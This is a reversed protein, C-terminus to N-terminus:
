VLLNLFRSGLPQIRAVLSYAEELEHRNIFGQTFQDYAVGNAGDIFADFLASLENRNNVAPAIVPLTHQAIM